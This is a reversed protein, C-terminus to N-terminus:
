TTRIDQIYEVIETLQPKYVTIKRFLKFKFTDISYNSASNHAFISFKM